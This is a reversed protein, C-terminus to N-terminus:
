AGWSFSLNRFVWLVFEIFAWGVVASVLAVISFMILFDKDDFM